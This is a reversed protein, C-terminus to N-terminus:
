ARPEIIMYTARGVAFIDGESVSALFSVNLDLTAQGQESLTMLAAGVAGDVLSRYVGGHLRGVARNKLEDRVPVRLRVWGEGADELEIGLFRWYLNTRAAERVRALLDPM